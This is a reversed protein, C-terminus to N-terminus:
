VIYIFLIVRKWGRRRFPRPQKFSFVVDSAFSIQYPISQGPNAPNMFGSALLYAPPTIPVIALFLFISITLVNLCTCKCIYILWTVKYDSLWCVVKSAARVLLVWVLERKIETM